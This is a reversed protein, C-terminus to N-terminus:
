HIGWIVYNRWSQKMQCVYTWLGYNHHKSSTIQQLSLCNISENGLKIYKMSM